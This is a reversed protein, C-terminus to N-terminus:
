PRPETHPPPGAPPTLGAISLTSVKANHSLDVVRIAHNNTDAVYLKDGAAAIGAPENFRPPSDTSGPQGDGAITRVEGTQPDIRKVKNNYTDAVYLKGQHFVIGLPHQLRAVGAPGDADGFTFLRGHPLASTGVVTRVDGRGGLPVARISSGESDAVFLWAGDSALGSPQAFSAYGPAFPNKPLLPGDVIDEQGNGAYPGISTGSLAMRWIQHPGAMAVYLHGEHPWLAWPSSLSTRLPSSGRFTRPIQRSQQGTGAVTFVEGRRLDIKRILHNQTDAVYLTAEVLAMGQPKNFQASRCDGDSRGARGSGITERLTGDLGAVVIRNHNSDAVFLRQGAADALLKGPFRLPTTASREAATQLPREDLQHKRRYFPIAKQLVASGQKATIEGSHRWIPKGQPDILIVTPWARVDMARWVGLDSDVVVPHEIEYRDIAERINDKDKETTFKASHVGIVVLSRPYDHELQNLEPLIHMCNICCYTWFDILVFKGRLDASGLPRNTNLWPLGALLLSVDAPQGSPSQAGGSRPSVVSLALAGALALPLIRRNNACYM